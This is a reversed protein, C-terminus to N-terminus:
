GGRRQPGRTTEKLPSVPAGGGEADGGGRPRRVVEGGGSHGGEGM